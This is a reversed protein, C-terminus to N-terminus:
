RGTSISRVEATCQLEIIELQLEGPVTDTDVSFPDTLLGLATQENRFQGIIMTFAKKMDEFM